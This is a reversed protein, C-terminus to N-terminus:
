GNQQMEKLANTIVEASLGGHFRPENNIVTLPLRVRGLIPTIDPYQNVEASSVDVFKINVGDGFDNKLTSGLEEAEQKM